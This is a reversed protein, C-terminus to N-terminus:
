DKTHKIIIKRNLVLDNMVVNVVYMGEKLLSTSLILPLQGPQQTGSVLKGAFDYLSVTAKQPFSNITSIFIRDNAPNPFILLDDVFSLGNIGTSQCIVPFIANDVHIGWSNQVDSYSYWNKDSNQEWGNGVDPDGDYNTFLALTDGFINPLEVGLYFPGDLVVQQDFFILTPKEAEVDAVLQSIPFSISDLTTRPTGNSGDNKWIKFYVPIDNTLSRKAVAFHFIAGTLLKGSEYEEFFSAKALDGFSNNGSVYGSGNGIISYLAYDGPLPYNLSDCGGPGVVHIYDAKKLTSTSSGDSITLKITYIGPSQFIHVPHHLTDTTEDGFDWLWSTPNGTSIDKFLVSFPSEGFRDTSEFNAQLVTPNYSRPNTSDKTGPFIVSNKKNSQAQLVLSFIVFAIIISIKQNMVKNNLMLVRSRFYM